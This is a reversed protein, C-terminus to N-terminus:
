DITSVHSLTQQLQRIARAWLKNVANESKGLAAAIEAFSRNEQHRLEIVRRYEVPLGALAEALRASEEHQLLLKSPSVNRYDALGSDNQQERKIERKETGFAKRVNLLRHILIQRLWGALEEPTQGRFELFREVGRTLTDQVFDSAGVKCRLESPMEAEAIALLYARYSEVLDGIQWGEGQRALDLTEEFSIGSRSDVFDPRRDVM